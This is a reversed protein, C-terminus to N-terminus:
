IMNCNKGGNYIYYLQDRTGVAEILLPFSQWALRRTSEQLFVDFIYVKSSKPRASV